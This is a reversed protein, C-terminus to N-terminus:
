PGANGAVAPGIGPDRPVAVLDLRTPPDGEGEVNVMFSGCVAVARWRGREQALGFGHPRGLVTGALPRFPTDELGAWGEVFVDWGGGSYGIVDPGRQTCEPVTGAQTPSLGPLEDLELDLAFTEGDANRYRVPPETQGARHPLVCLWVRDGARAERWVGSRDRLAAAVAGPPLLGARVEPDTGLETNWDIM